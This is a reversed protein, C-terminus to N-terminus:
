GFLRYRILRERIEIQHPTRALPDHRGHRLLQQPLAPLIASPFTDPSRNRV